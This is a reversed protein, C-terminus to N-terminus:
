YFFLFMSFFSINMMNLLLFMFFKHTSIFKIPFNNKLNMNINFYYSIKFYYYLNMISSIILIMSIMLLKSELLKNITIWKPIFGMFPPMGGISMFYMFLSIPIISKKKKSFIQFINMINMKNMSMLILLMLSMYIMIYLNLTFESTSSCAIMWGLHNISSFGIIKKMSIQNMGGLFSIMSNLIISIMMMLYNINYLMIMLPGIKQWTSLMFLMKWSIISSIEIYWYHFPASGLKIMFMLNMTIIIIKNLLNFNKFSLICILIISSSIVQIIFYKMIMELNFINSSFIMPIFFFLNIEMSIYCNIWCNTSIMFLTSMMNILIFMLNSSNMIIFM